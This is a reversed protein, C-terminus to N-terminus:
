DYSLQHTPLYCWYWLFWGCFHSMVFTSPLKFKIHCEARVTGSKVVVVKTDWGLLRFLFCSRMETPHTGSAKTVLHLHRGIPTDTWPTDAKNHMGGTFLIVFLHLFVVKGWVENAPPWLIWEKLIITIEVNHFVNPSSFSLPFQM